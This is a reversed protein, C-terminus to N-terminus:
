NLIALVSVGIALASVGLSTLAVGLAILSYFSAKETPAASPDAEEGSYSSLPNKFMAPKKM